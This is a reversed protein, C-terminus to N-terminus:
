AGAGARECTRRFPESLHDCATRRACCHGTCDGLCDIAQDYRAQTWNRASMLDAKAAPGIRSRQSAKIVPEGCRTALASAALAVTLDRKGMDAQADGHDVAARLCGCTEKMDNSSADAAPQSGDGECAHLAQAKLQAAIDGRPPLAAATATCVHSLILAPASGPAPPQFDLAAAGADLLTRDRSDKISLWQLASAHHGCDYSRAMEVTRTDREQLPKLVTMLAVASRVGPRVEVISAEDVAVTTTGDGGIELWAALSIAPSTALAAACVVRAVLAGRWARGRPWARPRSRDEIGTEVPPTTSPARRARPAPAEDAARPHPTTM